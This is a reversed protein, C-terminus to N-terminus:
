RSELWNKLTGTFEPTFEPALVTYEEVSGTIASRSLLCLNRCAM